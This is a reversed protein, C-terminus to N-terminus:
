SLLTVSLVNCCHSPVIAVDALLYLVCSFLAGRSQVPTKVKWRFGEQGQLLDVVKAEVTQEAAEDNLELVLIQLHLCAYFTFNAFLPFLDTRVSSAFVNTLNSYEWLKLHLLRWSSWFLSTVVINDQHPLAAVVVM